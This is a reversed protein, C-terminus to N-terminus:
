HPAPISVPMSEEPGAAGSITFPLTAKRLSPSWPCVATGRGEASGSGRRQGEAPTAGFERAFEAIGNATGCVVILDGPEVRFDAPLEVLGKGDRELAVVSAGSRERVSSRWPHAGVLTGPTM